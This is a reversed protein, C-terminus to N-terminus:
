RGVWGRPEEGHVVCAKVDSNPQNCFCGQDNLRAVEILQADSEYVTFKWGDTVRECRFVRGSHVLQRCVDQAIAEIGITVVKM